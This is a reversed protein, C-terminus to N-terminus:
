GRGMLGGITPIGGAGGPGSKLLQLIQQMSIPAQPAVQKMAQPAPANAGFIPKVDSSQPSLGKLGAMLKGIDPSAAAPAATTNWSGVAPAPPMQEIPLPQNWNYDMPSPGALNNTVVPNAIPPEGAAPMTFSDTPVPSGGTASGEFTGMQRPPNSSIGAESAGPPILGHSANGMNLLQDPRLGTSALMKAAREPDQQLAKVLEVMQAENMMM